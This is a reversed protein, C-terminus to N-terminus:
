TMSGHFRNIVSIMAFIDPPLDTLSVAASGKNLSYEASGAARDAALAETTLSDEDRFIRESRGNM